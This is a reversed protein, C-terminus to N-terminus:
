YIFLGETLLRTYAPDKRTETIWRFLRVFTWDAAIYLEGCPSVLWVDVSMYRCVCVCRWMCRWVCARVNMFLTSLLIMRLHKLTGLEHPLVSVVAQLFGWPCCTVIFLALVSVLM